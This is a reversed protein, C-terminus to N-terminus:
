VNDLETPSAYAKFTNMFKNGVPIIRISTFTIYKKNTSYVNRSVKTELKIKASNLEEKM